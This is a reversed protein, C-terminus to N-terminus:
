ESDFRLKAQRWAEAWNDADGYLNAAVSGPGNRYIRRRGKNNLAYFDPGFENLVFASMTKVSMANLRRVFSGSLWDSM